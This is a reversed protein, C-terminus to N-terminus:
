IRGHFPVSSALTKAAAPQIHGAPVVGVVLFVAGLGRAPCGAPLRALTAPESLRLVPIIVAPSALGGSDAGPSLRM